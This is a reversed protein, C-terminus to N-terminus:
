NLKLKKILPYNITGAILTIVGAIILMFRFGITVALYGGLGAGIAASINVLSEDLGWLVGSQRHKIFKVYLKKDSPGSLARFFGLFFQFMYLHWATHAFALLIFLIGRALFGLFVLVLEDKFGPIKDAIFGAVPEFIGFALFYILTSIGVEVLTVGYLENVYFISLFPTLLNSALWFISHSAILIGVGSPIKKLM